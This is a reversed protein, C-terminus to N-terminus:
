NDHENGSSAIESGKRDRKCKLQSKPDKEGDEINTSKVGRDVLKIKKKGGENVSNVPLPEKFVKDSKKTTDVIEDDGGDIKLGQMLEEVGIGFDEENKKMLEKINMNDLKETLEKMVDDDKYININKRMDRDEEIDRLFEEYQDDANKTNAKGVKKNAKDPKSKKGKKKGEEEGDVEETIPM